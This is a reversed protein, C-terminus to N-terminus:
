KGTILNLITIAFCLNLITERFSLSFDIPGFNALMKLSCVQGLEPVKNGDLYYVSVM